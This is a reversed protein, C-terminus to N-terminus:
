EPDRQHASFQNRCAPISSRVLDEVVRGPAEDTNDQFTEFLSLLVPVVMALELSKPDAMAFAENLNHMASAYARMAFDCYEFAEPTIGLEMRRHVAGVAIVAQKAAPHFM